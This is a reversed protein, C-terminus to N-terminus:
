WTKYKKVTDESWWCLALATKQRDTLPLSDIIPMVKKTKSYPISDGSEKRDAETNNYDTWAKYYLEKSIGAPGAIENYDKIAEFTIDEVGPVEKQWEYVQVKLNADEQTYGGYKVYM